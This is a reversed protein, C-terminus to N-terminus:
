VEEPSPLARANGGRGTTRPSRNIVLGTGANIERFPILFSYTSRTRDYGCYLWSGPATYGRRCLPALGHSADNAASRQRSMVARNTMRKSAFSRSKMPKLFFLGKAESRIVM